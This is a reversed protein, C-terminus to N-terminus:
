VLHYWKRESIKRLKDVAPTNYLYETSKSIDTLIGVTIQENPNPVQVLQALQQQTLGQPLNQATATSIPVAEFRQNLKQSSREAILFDIYTAQSYFRSIMDIETEKLDKIFLHINDNWSNTPLLKSSLSYGRTGHESNRIQQEAYRIEQLILSAADRRKDVRAKIYLYIALFGVVFTVVGINDNLFQFIIMM